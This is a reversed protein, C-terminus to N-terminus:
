PMTLLVSMLDIGYWLNGIRVNENAAHQNNDHNVMNVQIAPTKLMKYIADNVRNSGGSSILFVANEGTFSEVGKIVDQIAAQSIDVRTAPFGDQSRVVKVIKPYKRRTAMDPDERVIHWGQKQIHAEVLDMMKEPDNGKVLRMDLEAIAFEPIINRALDGVSGSSLGKITLSPYLLREMLPQGNGETQVIGLETKLMSDINPINDLMEKERETLPDISDYYGDILVTGDEAKMSTLLRALMQGPVPAWNGYHGSHLPREAGYVTLQMSTIGRGGFKFSPDGTQYVSGDCLVWVDIDQFLTNYTTLYSELNPSSSEEEGDFFLKINSSYGMNGAKLADMAALLAILPAKDDSASRAYLRWDESIPEGEKPMPIMKGGNYISQDYMKPDFADHNWLLPDVPQGDYHVYICVTRTAGPVLKEGYVIPPAGPLTLLRMDFGRDTFKQEILRANKHINVSDSAHNPISLLEAYESLIHPGEKSIWSRSAEIAPQAFNLMPLVLLLASFLRM